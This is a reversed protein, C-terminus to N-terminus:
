RRRKAPSRRTAAGARVAEDIAKRAWDLLADQDDLLFDPAEHYSMIARKGSAARYVFPGCGAAAFDARNGDGVKLYLREDAILAFMLGDRFLGAGGFMRRLGVGGLPELLELVFAGLGGPPEM